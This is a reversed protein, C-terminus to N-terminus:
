NYRQMYAGLGAQGMIPAASMYAGFGNENGPQIMSSQVGPYQYGFDDWAGVCSSPLGLNPGVARLAMGHAIVTLSGETMKRGIVRQKLLKETGMGIGIAVVIKAVDVMYGTRASEPLPLMRVIVDTAIAGGAGIVSDILQKTIEGGVPNRKYKRRKPAAQMATTKKRKPQAKKKPAPNFTAIKGM